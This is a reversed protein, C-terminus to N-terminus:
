VILSVMALFAIAAALFPSIFFQSGLYALSALALYQLLSNSVSGSMFESQLSGSSKQLIQQSFSNPSLNM